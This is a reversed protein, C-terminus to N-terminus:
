HVPDSSRPGEKVYARAVPSAHHHVLCWTGGERVFINTAALLNSGVSEGCTVFAADGMVNPIPNLCAVRGASSEFIRAWSELVDDRGTIATWGPHTCSVLAGGSWVVAMAEPDGVEFAQYFSANAALVAEKDNMKCIVKHPRSGLDHVSNVASYLGGLSSKDVANQSRSGELWLIHNTRLQSESGLSVVM